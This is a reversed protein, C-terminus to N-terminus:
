KSPIQDSKIIQSAPFGLGEPGADRRHARASRGGGADAQHAEAPGRIDLKFLRGYLKAFYQLVQLFFFFCTNLM